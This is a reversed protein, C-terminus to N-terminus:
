PWWEETADISRHIKRKCAKALEWANCGLVAAIFMLIPTLVAWGLVYAIANFFASM